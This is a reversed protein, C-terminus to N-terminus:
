GKVGSSIISQVFYRNAVVFVALLPMTGLVTAAMMAPYNVESHTEIFTALALPVTFLESRSLMVLPMAYDNWRWVFLIMGLAGLQPAINPVVVNILRGIHGAGDIQAADFLDQPISMCAQRVLFVGYATIMYPIILSWHTNYIGLYNAIMFRPVLLVQEPVIMTALYLLFIIRKGPFSLRAFAYGATVSTILPGIVGPLTVFLSNLYARYFPVSRSASIMGKFVREYAATTFTPPLWQIPFSFVDRELKFSTSITWIFPTIMMLGVLTVFLTILVRGIMRKQRYGFRGGQPKIENTKFTPAIQAM